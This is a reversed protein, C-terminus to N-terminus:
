MVIKRSVNGSKTKVQLVYVGKAKEPILLTSTVSSSVLSGNSSYLALSFLEDSSTWRLQGNEIVVNGKVAINKLDTSTGRVMLVQSGNDNVFTMENITASENLRFLQTFEQNAIVNDVTYGLLHQVGNKTYASVAFGELATLNSISGTYTIDFGRLGGPMYTSFIGQEVNWYATNNQEDAKVRFAPAGDPASSIQKVLQVVDIVNIDGDKNIDSYLMNFKVVTKELIYNVINVVDVINIAGDENSDGLKGALNIKEVNLFSGWQAASFYADFDAEKLILLKCTQTNVSSFVNLGLTAPTLRYATIKILKSCGAFASAGISAVKAGISVSDMKACSQFAGDGISTASSPIDFTMLSSCGIFAYSGISTAGSITATTLASCGSFASSGISTAGTITATTLASCGSFASNGITTAGGVVATKLGSCGYFANDDINSARDLQISTLGTCNSFANSGISSAGSMTLTKLNSCNSFAGVYYPNNYAGGITTAGKFTINRLNQCNTFTNTNNDTWYNVNITVDGNFTVDTLNSCGNFATVGVSNVNAPADLVTLSSCGNFANRGISTLTAPFDITKLNSCGYFANDGITKLNSPLKVTFLFSRGNFADTPLDTLNVGELNVSYCQKMNDRIYTIDTAGLIGTVTLRTVLSPHIATQSFITTALKGAETVNVTVDVDQEIIIATTSTGWATNYATLTGSPVYVVANGMNSLASSAPTTALCTIKIGCGSFASAGISTVSAPITIATLGTCSQFAYTGISTVGAGITLSTLGSCGNFTYDAISTVAAPITFSTLGSCGSFASAGISTVKAPITIATLGTCSQFAYTGISTVGAGITLSTLGSCGNFTYSGISTVSAPITIATLGSCSQFASTGISTVGAGINLSTLGTCNNFANTGISTLTTPLVISMLTTKGFYILGWNGINPNYGYTSSCFSNQPMENAPYTTNTNGMEPDSYTGANGAYAQISVASLDLVSLASLEERMFKIDRADISGTITLKTILSKESASFLTSLTGATTVNMTEPVTRVIGTLAITQSTQGTSTASINGSYTNVALGTKLRVYITDLALIGGSQTLTIPSASVFAAGSTTSIEFNTPATIVVNATLMGGGITLFKQDPNTAGPAYNLAAISSTSVSIPGSIPFTSWGSAAKYTAVASAPVYVISPTVYDFASSGITPPTTNLSYIIKIGTCYYFAQSGISTLTTPLVISTLTTKGSYSNPNFFSYMPMENAAYSQDGWPYTGTGYYDKISVGSLDLVALAPMADRITAVDRADINGTVTLNTVTTLYESALTSLTGAETVNVTQSVQASVNFTVLVVFLLSLLKKM